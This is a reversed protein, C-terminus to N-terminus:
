RGRSRRGLLYGLLLAGGLVGALVRPDRMRDALMGAGLALADLGEESAPEPPAEPTPTAAAPAEETKAPAGGGNSAAAAEEAPAGELMGALNQAFQEVLRASVDEIIGQGMAAAKGSLRLNADIRAHTEGGEESLHMGVDATATGQGRAEKVKVSMTASHEAPDRDVVELDGSYNMTVPGLKVKVGVKYADDSSHELVQAGPMCPAVREVDMLTEYVAEIPANVSFENEFEV